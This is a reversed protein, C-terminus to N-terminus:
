SAMTEFVYLYRVLGYHFPSMLIAHLLFVVINAIVSAKSVVVIKAHPGSYM